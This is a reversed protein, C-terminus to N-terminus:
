DAAPLVLQLAIVIALLLLLVALLGAANRVTLPRGKQILDAV